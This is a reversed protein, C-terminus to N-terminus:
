TFMSKDPSESPKNLAEVIVLSKLGLGGGIKILIKFKEGATPQFTGLFSFTRRKLRCEIKKRRMEILNKSLYM